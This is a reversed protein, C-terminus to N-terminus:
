ASPRVYTAIDVLADRLESLRCPKLIAIHADLEPYIWASLAVRVTSPSHERVYAFLTVGDVRAMRLETVLVDFTDSSLHAMGAEGGLAFVMEWPSEEPRLAISLAGIVYPDDDVFLIRMREGHVYRM